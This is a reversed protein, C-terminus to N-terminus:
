LCFSLAPVKLLKRPHNDLIDLDYLTHTHTYQLHLWHLSHLVQSIASSIATALGSAAGSLWTEYSVAPTNNYSEVNLMLRCSSIENGWICLKLDWGSRQDLFRLKVKYNQRKVGKRLSNTSKHNKWRTQKRVERHVTWVRAHVCLCTFVATRQKMLSWCNITDVLQSEPILPSCLCFYSFCLSLVPVDASAGSKKM